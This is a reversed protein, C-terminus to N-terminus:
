IRASCAPPQSPLLSRAWSAAVMRSDIVLWSYCWMYALSLVVPQPKHSFLAKVHTLMESSEARLKSPRAARQMTYKVVLDLRGKFSYSLLFYSSFM